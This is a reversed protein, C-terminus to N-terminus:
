QITCIINNQVKVVYDAGGHQAQVGPHLSAPPSYLSSQQQQQQQQQQLQQQHLYQAALTGTDRTGSQLSVVSPALQTAGVSPRPQNGQTSSGCGAPSYPRPDPHTTTTPSESHTCVPHDISAPQPAGNSSQVQYGLSAVEVEPAGSASSSLTDSCSQSNGKLPLSPPLINSCLNDARERLRRVAEKFSSSSDIGARRTGPTGFSDLTKKQNEILEMVEHLQGEQSKLLEEQHKVLLQKEELVSKSKELREKGAELRGTKECVVQLLCDVRECKAKLITQQAGVLTDDDDPNLEDLADMLREEQDHVGQKTAEMEVGKDALAQKLGELEQDREELKARLDIVHGEILKEGDIGRAELEAVLGSMRKEDPGDSVQTQDMGSSSHAASATPPPGASPM